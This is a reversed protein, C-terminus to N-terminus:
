SRKAELDELKRRADRRDWRDVEPIPDLAFKSVRYDDAKDLQAVFERLKEEQRVRWQRIREALADDDDFSEVSIRATAIRFDISELAKERLLDLKFTVKSSTAM